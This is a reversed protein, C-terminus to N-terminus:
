SVDAILDIYQQMADDQATGKLSNWADWKARAVMDGFGAGPRAAEHTPVVELMTVAANAVDARGLAMGALIM